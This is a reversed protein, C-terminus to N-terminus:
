HYAGNTQQTKTVKWKFSLQNQILFQGLITINEHAVPM